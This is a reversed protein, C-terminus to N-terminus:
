DFFEFGAFLTTLKARHAVCSKYLVCVDSM